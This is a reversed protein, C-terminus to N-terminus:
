RPTRHVSSRSFLFSLLVAILIERRRMRFFIQAVSSNFSSALCYINDRQNTKDLIYLARPERTDRARTNVAIKTIKLLYFDDVDHTAHFSGIDVFFVYKRLTIIYTRTDYPM